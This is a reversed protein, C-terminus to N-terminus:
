GGGVMHVLEIVDGEALSTGAFLTHGLITTNYEVVVADVCLELAALLDAVTTGNACERPAGNLTIVM